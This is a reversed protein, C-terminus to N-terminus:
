ILINIKPIYKIPFITLVYICKYLALQNKEEISIIKKSKIKGFPNQTKYDKIVVTLDSNEKQHFDIM